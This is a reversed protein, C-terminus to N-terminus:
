PAGGTVNRIVVWPVSNQSTMYQPFGAGVRTFSAASPSVIVTPHQESLETM